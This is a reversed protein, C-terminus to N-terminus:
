KFWKRDERIALQPNAMILSGLKIKFHQLAYSIIPRPNYNAIYLYSPDANINKYYKLNNLLTILIEITLMRNNCDINYESMIGKNQDIIEWSNRERIQAWLEQADRRHEVLVIILIPINRNNVIFLKKRYDNNIKNVIDQCTDETFIIGNYNIPQIITLSRFFSIAETISCM